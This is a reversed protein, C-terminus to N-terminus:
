LGATGSRPDPIYTSEAIHFFTHALNNIAANNLFAFYQFCGATGSTLTTVHVVTCGCLPTHLQSFFSSSRESSIVGPCVVLHFSAIGM